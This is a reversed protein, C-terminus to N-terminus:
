TMIIGVIAQNKPSLYIDPFFSFLKISLLSFILFINGKITSYRSLMSYLGSLPPLPFFYIYVKKQLKFAYVEYKYENM